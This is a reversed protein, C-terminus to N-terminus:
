ALVAAGAGRPRRSPRTPDTGRASCLSQSFGVRWPTLVPWKPGPSIKARHPGARRARAARSAALTGGFRQSSDRASQLAPPRPPRASASPGRPPSPARCPTSALARTAPATDTSGGVRRCRGRRPPPSSPPRPRGRPRPSPGVAEDPTACCSFRAPGPGPTTGARVPLRPARRRRAGSM